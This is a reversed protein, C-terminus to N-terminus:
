IFQKQKKFYLFTKSLGNKSSIPLPKRILNLIKKNCVVYSETLKNLRESNLPLRLVDGVKALCKILIPSINYIINRRNLSKAILLVVENTSLPEDDAVNYIGSVFNKNEIIEKIIFLLNEISCYSRKNNFAGLIWPTKEFILKYLLNLNGKNEPGHIMCPRLIYFKKDDPINKSLIYQEAYLKSKGYHTKPDPFHNEKLSDNVKDAVAKVSSLMIFIKAKSKLFSDFVNKTLETNIEYYIEPSLTKKTDHAKGALHIVIDQNIDICTGKKYNNITYIGKFYKTLNKGIFGSSGTLFISM